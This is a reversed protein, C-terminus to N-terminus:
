GFNSFTGRPDFPPNRYGRNAKEGGETNADVRNNITNDMDNPRKDSHDPSSTSHKVRWISIQKTYESYDTKPAWTPFSKIMQKIKTQYKFKASYFEENIESKEKEQSCGRLRSELVDIEAEYEERFHKKM